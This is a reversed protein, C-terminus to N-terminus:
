VGYVAAGTEIVGAATPNDSYVVIPSNMHYSQAVIAGGAAAANPYQTTVSVTPKLQDFAARTHPDTDGAAGLFWVTAFRAIGAAPIASVTLTVTGDANTVAASVTTLWFTGDNLQVVIYDSAAILNNSTSPTVGRNAFEPNTSYSGPDRDLILSTAAGAAAASAKARGLEKLFQITHQTGGSTYSLHSIKTRARQRPPVLATIVTGATQTSRPISFSDLLGMPGLGM